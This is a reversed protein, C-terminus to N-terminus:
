QAVPGEGLKGGAELLEKLEAEVGMAKKNQEEAVEIMDEMMVRPLGLFEPFSMNFIQGIKLRAFEMMRSRHTPLFSKVHEYALSEAPHLENAALPRARDVQDWHEAAELHDFIGHSSQYL